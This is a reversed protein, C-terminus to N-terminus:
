RLLEVGSTVDSLDGWAPSTILFSGREPNFTAASFGWQAGALKIERGEIWVQGEVGYQILYAATRPPSKAEWVPWCGESPSGVRVGDLLVYTRMPRVDQEPSCGEITGGHLVWSWLQGQLLNQGGTPPASSHFGCAALMLVLALLFHRM